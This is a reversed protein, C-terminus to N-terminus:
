ETTTEVPERADDQQTPGAQIPEPMLQEEDIVIVRVENGIDM